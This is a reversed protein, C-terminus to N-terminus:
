IQIKKGAQKPPKQVFFLPRVLTHHHKLPHLRPLLEHAAKVQHAGFLTRALGHPSLEPRRVLPEELVETDRCFHVVADLDSTVGDLTSLHSSRSYAKESAM